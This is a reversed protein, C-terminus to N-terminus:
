RLLSNVVSSQVRKKVECKDQLTKVVKESVKKAKVGANSKTQRNHTHSTESNCLEATRLSSIEVDYVSM